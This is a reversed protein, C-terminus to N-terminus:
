MSDSTERIWVDCFIFTASTALNILSLLPSFLSCSGEVLTAEDEVSKAEEEVLEVEDEVPKAEEEVLQTEDEVLKAEEGTTKAEEEVPKSEEEMSKAEEKGEDVEVPVSEIVTVIEESSQEQLITEDCVRSAENSGGELDVLPEESPIPEDVKATEQELKPPDLQFELTPDVAISPANQMNANM